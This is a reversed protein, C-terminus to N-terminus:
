MSSSHRPPGKPLVTAAYIDPVTDRHIRTGCTISDQHPARATAPTTGQAPRCSNPSTRPSRSTAEAPSLEAGARDPRALTPRPGNADASDDVAPRTGPRSRRTTKRQYRLESLDREGQGGRRIRQERGRQSRDKEHVQHAHGDSGHAPPCDITEAMAGRRATAIVTLVAPIPRVSLRGSHAMTSPRRRHTRPPTKMACAEALAKTPVAALLRIACERDASGGRKLIQASTDSRGRRATRGVQPPQNAQAVNM